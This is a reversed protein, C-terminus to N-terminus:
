RRSRSAEYRRVRAWRRLLGSRATRAAPKCASNELRGSGTSEQTSSRQFGLRRELFRHFRDSARWPLSRDFTQGMKASSRAGDCETRPGGSHRIDTFLSVGMMPTYFLRFFFFSRSFVSRLLSSKPEGKSADNRSTGSKQWKAVMKGSKCRAAPCYQVDIPVVCLVKCYNRLQLALTEFFLLSHPEWITCQYEVFMEWRM